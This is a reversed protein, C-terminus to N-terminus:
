RIGDKYFVAGYYPRGNYYGTQKLGVLDTVQILKDPDVTDPGIPDRIITLKPILKANTGGGTTIGPEGPSEIRISPTGTYGTGISIMSIDIIEGNGGCIPKAVAGNSPEIIIKDNKCDYGIGGDDIGIDTLNISVNYTSFGVSSSSTPYGNGPNIIEPDCVTGKGEVIRPCPPPYLKASIAVPNVKWSQTRGSKVRKKVTIIASFAVPNNWFNNGAGGPINYYVMKIDHIGAAVNFNYTRIHEYVEAAFDPPNGIEVDDIYVRLGDDALAKLTYQNDSPFNVGRWVSTWERGMFNRRFDDDDKWAPTLSPGLAEMRYTALTPGEYTVPTGGSEVRSTGSVLGGVLIQRDVAITSSGLNIKHTERGHHKKQKRWVTGNITISRVAEGKYNPNDDYWLKIVVEGNGIISKGDSSFKADGSKIEFEVNADDGSGDKLEIKKNNNVVRISKNSKNLESYIIPHSTSGGPVNETITSTEQAVAWDATNFVKEDIFHYVDQRENYVEVTITYEGKSLYVKTTEPNETRFGDLESIVRGDILVRGRKDKTGKLGYYGDYDIVLPWSNTFTEGSMESDLTALPPVPSLAYRNMFKSWRFDGGVPWWQNKAGPFRTTWTPNRPCRGEGTEIPEQPIPPMPADITMAVGMPNEQWSKPSIVEEVTYAAQINIALAMPNIGKIADAVQNSIKNIKLSVNTDSGHSDLLELTNDPRGQNSSLRSQGASSTAGMVNVNYRKGATFIGSGRKTEKAKNPTRKLKITGQDSNIRIEKAATGATRWSDDAEMIFDLKASGSGTVDLYYKNGSIGFKVSVNGGAAGDVTIGPGFSFAGGAIQELDAVLQYSGRKFARVYTSKGTSHNGPITNDPWENKLKNTFGEKRIRIEDGERKFLLNVNDDVEVEINYNGDFPFDINNWIIRHSGAYPNDPLPHLTDFPCIGYDNIFGGRGWVNTRWLQRNAKDIWDITNFVNQTQIGESVTSGAPAVQPAPPPDVVFQCTNGVINIFRGKSANCVLDQWDMDDDEEMQLTSEGQTRLKIGHKTEPSVCIVEYLRGPVPTKTFTENLQSGKYGKQVNIGLGPISIGNSFWASTTIKFTVDKTEQDQIIKTEKIPRNLLDIRILHVGATMTKKLAKGTNTGVAKRGRFHEMDMVFVNDIYLHAEDLRASRFIYEGDYPFDEEWVFTFLIGGYDSGPTSAPPVPSIAYRNM